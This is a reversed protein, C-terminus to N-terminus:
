HAVEFILLQARAKTKGPSAAVFLKNLEPVLLATKAGPASPVQALLEYHDPDQRSFVSVYGQGGPVYVRQRAHDYVVDDAGAAAPYSAVVSGNESNMVVLMAPKRCVIILRKGAEDFAIPSNEAAVGVKWRAGVKMAERDVVAVENKDTVNIFLRTGAQELAMAEVHDSEFRIESVPKNTALDVKSVFSHDLPVDKGGTVVFLLRKMPDYGISDAGAVLKITSVPQYDSGRLIKITGDDGDTVYIQDKEPLYLISHPTGFGAVSRIRRGKEVDIIELTKHDEGALFLRKRKLDISLHDFDGTIGPLLITQVLKLPSHVAAKAQTASPTQASSTSGTSIFIVFLGVVFMGPLRRM